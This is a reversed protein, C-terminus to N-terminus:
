EDNIFSEFSSRIKHNGKELIYVCEFLLNILEEKM